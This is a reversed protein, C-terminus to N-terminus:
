TWAISFLERRARERQEVNTSIPFPSNASRVVAHQRSIMRDIDDDCPRLERSPEELVVERSEDSKPRKEDSAAGDDENDQRLSGKKSSPRSQLYLAVDTQAHTRGQFEPVDAGSYDHDEDYPDEDKMAAFVQLVRQTDFSFRHMTCIEEPNTGNIVMTSTVVFNHTRSGYYPCAHLLRKEPM